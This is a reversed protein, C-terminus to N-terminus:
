SFDGPRMDSAGALTIDVQCTGPAVPLVVQGKSLKLDFQRTEGDQHVYLLGAIGESDGEPTVKHAWVKLQDTTTAGANRGPRFTAQRLSSFASIEGAAAEYRQEREPYKLQVDTVAPRGAATVSFHAQEGEGQDERLEIILRRAFAGSLAVAITMGIVMAGVLLNAKGGARLWYCCPSSVAWFRFSSRV